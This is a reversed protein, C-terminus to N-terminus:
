NTLRLGVEYFVPAKMIASLTPWWWFVDATITKGWGQNSEGTGGTHIHTNGRDTLLEDKTKM